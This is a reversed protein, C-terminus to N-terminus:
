QQGEWNHSNCAVWCNRRLLFLFPVPCSSVFSSIRYAKEQDSSELRYLFHRKNLTQRPRWFIICVWDHSGFPQIASWDHGHLTHRSRLMGWCWLPQLQYFIISITGKPCWVFLCQLIAWTRIWLRYVSLTFSIYSCFGPLIRSSGKVSITVTSGQTPIWAVNPTEIAHEELSKFVIIGYM